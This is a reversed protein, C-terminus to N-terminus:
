IKGQAILKDVAAKFGRPHDTRYNQVITAAPLRHYEEATLSVVGPQQQKGKTKEFLDYQQRFTPDSNYRRRLESTTTRPSTIFAVVDPPILPTASPQENLSGRFPQIADEDLLELYARSFHSTSVYGGNELLVEVRQRILANTKTDATFRENLMWQAMANDIQETTNMDTGAKTTFSM